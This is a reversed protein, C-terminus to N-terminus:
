WPTMGCTACGGRAGLGDCEVCFPETAPTIDAPLAVSSPMLRAWTEGQARLEDEVVALVKRLDYASLPLSTCGPLKLRPGEDSMRMPLIKIQRSM